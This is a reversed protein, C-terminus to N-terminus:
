ENTAADLAYQLGETDITALIDGEKVVDGAKANVVLLKGEVEFSSKLLGSSKIHGIYTEYDQYSQSNIVSVRVSKVVAQSLTVSDKSCGMLLLVLIVLLTKRM